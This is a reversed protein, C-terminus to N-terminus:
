PGVSWLTFDGFEFGDSFITRGVVLSGGVSLGTRITHLTGDPWLIRLEHITDADAIGFRVEFGNQASFCSGAFLTRHITWPAGGQQSVTLALRTGIADRSVTHGDGIPRVTFSGAAVEPEIEFFRNPERVEAPGVMRGGNAIVLESLGDGDSDLIATGHTRYPYPPYTGPPTGPPEPAPFDIMSSLDAYELAEGVQSSSVLLHNAFGSPPGGNGIFIDMIGDQDLDGLQCGMAGLEEPLPIDIGIEQTVNRFAADGQNLFLLHSPPYPSGEEADPTRKFAILDEWGDNNFDAACSVFSSLPYGLDEDALSSFQDTADEFIANGTEVLQNRWLKNRVIVNNEYLDLDGDNDADFFTSHQTKEPNLSLGSVETVDTFTGDDNNRWLINRGLLEPSSNPNRNVSVFLDVDGDRDYDGAVVNASAVAIPEVNGPPVPGAVGAVDTVDEFLLEGSELWLNRYMADFDVGENGGKTIFLDYDGDNDFDAAVAGWAIDGDMLVQAVEFIAEGGPSGINHLIFSRDGPNGVFFEVQGDLDFDAAVLARGRQFSTLAQQFGNELAQDVVTTIEASLTTASFLCVLLMRHGLNKM